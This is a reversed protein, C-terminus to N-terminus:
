ICAYHSGLVTLLLRTDVQEGWLVRAQHVPAPALGDTGVARYLLKEYCAVHVRFMGRDQIIVSKWPVADVTACAYACSVRM